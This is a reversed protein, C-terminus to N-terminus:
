FVVVGGGFEGLDVVFEFDGFLGYGVCGFVVDFYGGVLCNWVVLMLSLLVFFFMVLWRFFSDFVLIEM